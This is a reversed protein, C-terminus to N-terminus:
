EAIKLLAEILDDDTPEDTQEEAPGPADLTAVPVKPTAAPPKASGANTHEEEEHPPVTNAV